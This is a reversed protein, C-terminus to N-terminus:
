RLVGTPMRRTLVYTGTADDLRFGTVAYGDAFANMLEARVRLRWNLAAAPDAKKLQQFSRPISVALENGAGPQRHEGSQAAGGAATRGALLAQVAPSALDWEVLLRDTPLGANLGDNMDGYHNVLYTRSRGGLKAINLHANVAELPDFTWTILDYGNDLAWRAQARKLNVGVQRGRYAPLVGLMHSLLAPRGFQRGPFGYCFGIVKGADVAVHVHGGWSNAVHLQHFPVADMGDGWVLKQLEVCAHIDAPTNAQRYEIM